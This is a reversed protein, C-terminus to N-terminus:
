KIKNSAFEFGKVKDKFALFVELIHTNDIYNIISIIFYEDALLKAPITKLNEEFGKKLIWISMKDAAREINTNIVDALKINKNDFVEVQLKEVKEIKINLENVLSNIYAFVIDKDCRLGYSLTSYISHNFKLTSLIVIKDYKFHEPLDNFTIKNSHLDLIAEDLSMKKNKKPKKLIHLKNIKAIIICLLIISVIFQWNNNLFYM